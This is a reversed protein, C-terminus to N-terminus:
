KQVLCLGLKATTDICEKSTKLHRKLWLISLSIASTLILNM